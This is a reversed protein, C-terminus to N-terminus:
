EVRKTNIHTPQVQKPPKQKQRERMADIDWKAKAENVTKVMPPIETQRVNELKVHKILPELVPNGIRLHTNKM